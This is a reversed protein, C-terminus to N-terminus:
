YLMHKNPRFLYKSNYTSSIVDTLLPYKLTAFLFTPLSALVAVPIPVWKLDNHYIVFFTATFAIMMTTISIFLTTLGMMLKAPLAEIFDNESYRSTLISLFMLISTSSTVLALADSVAFIMFPVKKLLLPYGTTQNNGGPVTFAAAFVVTAILTAVVMCSTATNKMWKEGDKVLKKHEETFLTRPNKGDLNQKATYSPQMIKEVEKFWQLERQMQLAAGSVTQLQNIPALKAALHLMNNGREDRYSTILDKISGIEFIINFIDAHRHLVATHFISRSHEDVKWILDPYAHILEVLFTTNGSEAATFLTRTPSRILESIKSSDLQLINKWLARVLELAQQHKSSAHQGINIGPISNALSTWISNNNGRTFASPNRALIHLATDQNGDRAVALKPHHTLLDIAVDFLHTGICTNLIEIRDQDELDEGKMKRYLFWVMEHHGFSAAMYLPTVRHSGRVSPLSPNKNM